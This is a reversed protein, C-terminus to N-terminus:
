DPSYQLKINPTGRMPEAAVCDRDRSDEELEMSAQFSEQPLPRILFGRVFGEAMVFWNFAAVFAARISLKRFATYVVLVCLALAWLGLVIFDRTILSLFLAGLGSALLL